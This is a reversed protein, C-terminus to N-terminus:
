MDYCIGLTPIGSGFIAFDCKFAKEDYVSNPGSFFIIRRVDKLAPIEELAMTHLHLESHVGFERICRAILQNYQSGFDLVIIKGTMFTDKKNLLRYWLSCTYYQRRQFALIETRQLIMIKRTKFDKEVYIVATRFLNSSDSDIGM